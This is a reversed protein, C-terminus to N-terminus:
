LFLEFYNSLSISEDIYNDGVSEASRSLPKLILNQFRIEPYAVHSKRILLLNNDKCKNKCGTKLDLKM